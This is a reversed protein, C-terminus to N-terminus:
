KSVGSKERVRNKCEYALGPSGTLTIYNPLRTKKDIVASEIQDCTLNFARDLNAGKLNAKRLNTNYFDAASLNAGKLNAGRLNANGFNVNGLFSQMLSTHSLNTERLDAHYLNSNVLNLGILNLGKGKMLNKCSFTSPFSRDLLIYDPLRTNKDFIASEIQDCTLNRADKLNAGKLNAKRLNTNNFQADLLSAGELNTGRLSANDFHVFNLIAQM